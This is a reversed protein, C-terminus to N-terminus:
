IFPSPIADYFGMLYQKRFNTVNRVDDFSSLRRVQTGLSLSQSVFSVESVTLNDGSLLDTNHLTFLLQSRKTNYERLQFLNLFQPLLSSHISEDIDDIVAVGGTRLATLLSALLVFLRQTGSSEDELKIPIEAGDEALHFTRFSVDNLTLDPNSQISTNMQSLYLAQMPLPLSSISGMAKRMEIKQIHVDLKRLFSSVLNLAAAERDVSAPHDFTESLKQISQFPSISSDLYLIKKEFFLFASKLKSHIGPFEKAIFPFIPRLQRQSAADICEFTLRKIKSQFEDVNPLRIHCENSEFLVDENSCLKEKVIRNSAVEVSYTFCVDMDTWSMEIFTSESPLKKLHNPQYLSFPHIRNLAFNVLASIAQLIASKGSANAGYFAMCPVLRQGGEDIFPYKPMHAYGNPAKKQDYTFQLSLDAICKFNRVRISSLM